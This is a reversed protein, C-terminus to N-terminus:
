PSPNLHYPHPAFHMKSFENKFNPLSQICIPQFTISERPPHPHHHPTVPDFPFLAFEAKLCHKVQLKAFFHSPRVFPTVNDSRSSNMAAFFQVGQFEKYVSLGTSLGVSQCVSRFIYKFLNVNQKWLNVCFLLHCYFL